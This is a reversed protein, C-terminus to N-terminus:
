KGDKPWRKMIDVFLLFSVCPGVIGYVIDELFTIKGDGPVMTFMDYDANMTTKSQDKCLSTYDKILYTSWVISFIILVLLMYKHKM